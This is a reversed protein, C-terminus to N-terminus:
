ESILNLLNNRENVFVLFLGVTLTLLLLTSMFAYCLFKLKENEDRVLSIFRVIVTTSILVSVLAIDALYRINVGALCM